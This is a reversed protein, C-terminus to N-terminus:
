HCDGEDRASCVRRVGGHSAHQGARPRICLNFDVNRLGEPGASTDLVCPEVRLDHTGVCEIEGAGSLALRELRDM